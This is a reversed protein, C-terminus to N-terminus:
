GSEAVELEVMTSSVLGICRLTGTALSAAIAVVVTATAM